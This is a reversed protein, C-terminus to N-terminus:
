FGLIEKARSIARDEIDSLTLCKIDDSSLLVKILVDECDKFNKSLLTLHVELENPRSIFRHNIQCIKFNM